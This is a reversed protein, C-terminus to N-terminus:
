WTAGRARARERVGAFEEAIPVMDRQAATLGDGGGPPPDHTGAAVATRPRGAPPVPPPPALGARVLRARVAQVWSLPRGLRRALARVSPPRGLEATLAAVAELVARDAPGPDDRPRGPKGPARAAVAAAVAAEDAARDPSPMKGRRAPPLTWDGSAILRHRAELVAASRVGLAEAVERDYPSRGLGAALRLAVALVRRDFADPTDPAPIPDAQTTPTM